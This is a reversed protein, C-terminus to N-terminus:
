RLLRIRFYLFAVILAFTITFVWTLPMFGIALWRLITMFSYSLFTLFLGFSREKDKKTAVGLISTAASVVYFGGIMVRVCTSDIAHGIPTTSNVVYWPGVAYLGVTLLGMAIIVEIVLLPHVYAKILANSIRSM